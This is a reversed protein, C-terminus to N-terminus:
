EKQTSWATEITSTDIKFQFFMELRSNGFYLTKDAILEEVFEADPIIVLQLNENTSTLSLTIAMGIPVIKDGDKQTYGDAKIAYSFNEDKGFEIYKSRNLDNDDIIMPIPKGGIHAVLHAHTATPIDM